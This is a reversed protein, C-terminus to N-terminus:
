LSHVDGFRDWPGGSADGDHLGGTPDEGLRVTPVVSAFRAADFM